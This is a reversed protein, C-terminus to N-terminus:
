ESDIAGHLEDRRRLLQAFLASQGKARLLNDGPAEVGFYEDGNLHDTYFRLSLMCTVHLLADVLEDTEPM